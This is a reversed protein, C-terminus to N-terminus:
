LLTLQPPLTGWRTKVPRARLPPTVLHIPNSPIAPSFASAVKLAFSLAALKGDGERNIDFDTRPFIWLLISACGRGLQLRGLPAPTLPNVKLAPGLRLGVGGGSDTSRPFHREKYGLRPEVLNLIQLLQPCIPGPSVRPARGVRSATFEM